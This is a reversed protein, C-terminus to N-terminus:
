SRAKLPTPPSDAPRINHWADAISREQQTEIFARAAERSAASIEQYHAPDELLRQLAELWPEVDQRPAPNDYDLARRYPNVPLVYPVGHKAEPIGGRDSAIVPIGRQMAENVVRPFPDEWLSPVLLVRTLDYIPEVPSLPKLVQVNPLEDLKQQDDRQLKGWTVVVAFAVDPLRQALELFIPMGKISSANILTVFGRDPERAREQHPELPEFRPHVVTYRLDLGSSKVLYEGLFRSPTVFGSMSRYLESVHSTELFSQEASCFASPGFSMAFGATFIAYTECGAPLARERLVHALQLLELSGDFYVADPEFDRLITELPELSEQMVPEMLFSALWPGLLRLRELLKGSARWVIGLLAAFSKRHHALVKPFPSGKRNWYWPFRLRKALPWEFFGKLTFAHVPVEGHHFSDFFILPYERCTVEVGGRRLREIAADRHQRTATLRCILLCSHGQSMLTDIQSLNSKAAGSPRENAYSISSFLVVRRSPSDAAPAAARASDKM